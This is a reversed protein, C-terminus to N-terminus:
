QPHTLGDVVLAALNRAADKTLPRLKAFDITSGAALQSDYPIRVIERVRSRFHAEIEDLNVLQTGQTATNLAVITGRVLHKYGNSDLWTLTEAALRAEDFSGGSVIVLGDARDLTAKMVSHIIGTGCDTLAISYYREVLNAVVNYDSEDFAESLMPDTDSALVDLRTKDRSVFQSFDSFSRISAARNVVDRVTKETTRTFREALTGRDPNADIAIVRDERVLALSMGLLTTITTKGVGGKRTLVPVFKADGDLRAGILADLAKRHRVAKSDGLNILRASVFYLFRNFGSEPAGRGKKPELIRDPTLMSVPEPVDSTEGRARGRRSPMAVEGTTVNEDAISAAAPTEGTTVPIVVESTTSSVEAVAEFDIEEVVISSDSAFLSDKIEDLILVEPAVEVTTENVFAEVSVEDVVVDNTADVAVKRPKKSAPTSPKKPQAV